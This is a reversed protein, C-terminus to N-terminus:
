TILLVIRILFSHFKYQINKFITNSCILNSRSRQLNSRPLELIKLRFGGGM